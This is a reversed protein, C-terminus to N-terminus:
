GRRRGGQVAPAQVARGPGVTLFRNLLARRAECPSCGDLSPVARRVPTLVAKVLDGLGVQSPLGKITIYAM